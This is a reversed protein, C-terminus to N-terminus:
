AFKGELYEAVPGMNAMIEDMCKQYTEWGGAIPDAITADRVNIDKRFRKLLFSRTCADPLLRSIRELHQPEFALVLDAEKLIERTLPQSRYLSINVNQAEAARRALKTPPFGLSAHTGASMVRVKRRTKSSLSRRLFGSAMPSRCSNGTCVFLVLLHVGEGMKIDSGLAKEIDAIPVSGKRLLTPPTTTVDIVTSAPGDCKGGDIIVELEEDAFRSAVNAATIAEDEGSPNASTTALPTNLAKLIKLMVEHGPIRVGIRGKSDVLALPSADSHEMVVTLPGPLFRQMLRRAAANPRAYRNVSTKRPVFLVLPKTKRRKKLAYVRAIATEDFASCGLGYVTDTPFAILGGETVVHSIRRLDAAGLKKGDLIVALIIRAVSQIDVLGFQAMALM